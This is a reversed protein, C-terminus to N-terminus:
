NFTQLITGCNDFSDFVKAVESISAMNSDILLMKTIHQVTWFICEQQWILWFVKVV